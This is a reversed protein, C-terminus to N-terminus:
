QVLIYEHYSTNCGQFPIIVIHLVVDSIYM